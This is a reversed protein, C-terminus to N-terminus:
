LFMWDWHLTIFICMMFVYLFQGPYFFSKCQQLGILKLILYMDRVVINIHFINISSVETETLRRELWGKSEELSGVKKNLEEIMPLQRNLHSINKQPFCLLLLMYVFPRILISNKVQRKSQVISSKNFLSVVKYYFNSRM